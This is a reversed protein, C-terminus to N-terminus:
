IYLELKHKFATAHLKTQLYVIVIMFYSAVLANVFIFSISGDAETMQTYVELSFFHVIKYMYASTHM